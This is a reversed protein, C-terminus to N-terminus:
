VAFTYCNAPIPFSVDHHLGFRWLMHQGVGCCTNDLAVAHTVWRLLM